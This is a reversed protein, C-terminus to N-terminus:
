SRDVKNTLFPDRRSRSSQMVCYTPSDIAGPMEALVQRGLMLVVIGVELKKEKISNQLNFEPRRALQDVKEARM